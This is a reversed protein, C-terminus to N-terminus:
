TLCFGALIGQHFRRYLRDVRKGQETLRVYVVRGDKQAKTKTVYGKKALKNVAITVSSLTIYRQAALESITRGKEQNKGVAQLMHVETLSLNLKKANEVMAEEVVTILNYADELGEILNQCFM